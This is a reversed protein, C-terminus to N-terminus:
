SSQIDYYNKLFKRNKHFNCQHFQNSIYSEVLFIIQYNWKHLSEQMSQKLKHFFLEKERWTYFEDFPFSSANKNM